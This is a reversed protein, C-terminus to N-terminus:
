LGQLIIHLAEINTAADIQGQIAAYKERIEQRKAEAEQTSTGPIQKAIVDDWPAFAIARQQRRIIHSITKAKDLNVIIM